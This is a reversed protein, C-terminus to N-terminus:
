PKTEYNGPTSPVVHCGYSVCVPSITDNRSEANPTPRSYGGQSYLLRLRKRCEAVDPSNADLGALRKLEKAFSETANAAAPIEEMSNLLAALAVVSPRHVVFYYDIVSLEALFRSLELIDHRTDM